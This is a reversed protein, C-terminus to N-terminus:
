MKLHIFHENSDEVHVSVNFTIDLQGLVQFSCAQNHDPDVCTLDGLQYGDYAIEDVAYSGNLYIDVPAENVDNIKIDFSKSM